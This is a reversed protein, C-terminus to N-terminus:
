RGADLRRASSGIKNSATSSLVGGVFNSPGCPRSANQKQMALHSSRLLRPRNPRFWRAPGSAERPIGFPSTARNSTTAAM